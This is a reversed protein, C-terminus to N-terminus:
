IAAGLGTVVNPVGDALPIARAGPLPFLRVRDGVDLVDFSATQVELKGLAPHTVEYLVDRGRFARTTIAADSGAARELGITEPRIGVATVSDSAETSLVFRGLTTHVGAGDIRGPVVNVEGLFAATWADVPSWYLEGPTGVQLARGSRMVVVRDALSLAEEQDHTVWLATSGTGRLVGAVDARLRVRLAADLSSFPEDLLILAPEPALARAVAVRQREGGSLQAPDSDARDRLGVLELVEGVRAVDRGVGFAVNEAVSLHPFLSDGQPVLGVGRREPDVWAGGGAVIRGAITVTGADPVEFGAVMRLLTTKGSGSPGVIAVLEGPALELSVGDVAVRDGFRRVVEEVRLAAAAAGHGVAAGDPNGAAVM